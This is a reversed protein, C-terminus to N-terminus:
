HWWYVYRFEKHVHSVILGYATDYKELREEYIPIIAEAVAVGTEDGIKRCEEASRRADAIWGEKEHRLEEYYFQLRKRYQIYDDQVMDNRPIEKLELIECAQELTM